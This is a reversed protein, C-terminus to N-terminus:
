TGGLGESVARCASLPEESSGAVKQGKPVMVTQLLMGRWQDPCPSADEHRAEAARPHAVETMCEARHGPMHLMPMTTVTGCSATEAM